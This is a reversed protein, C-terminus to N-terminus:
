EHVLNSPGCIKDALFPATLSTPSSRCPAQPGYLSPPLARHALKLPVQLGRLTHKFNRRGGLEYLGPGPLLPLRCLPCTESVGKARLQAVTRMCCRAYAISQPALSTACLPVHRLILCAHVLSVLCPIRLRFPRPTTHCTWRNPPAAGPLLPTARCPAGLVAVPPKAAVDHPLLGCTTARASPRRPRGPQTAHHRTANWPAAHCPM